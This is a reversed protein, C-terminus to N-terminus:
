TGLFVFRGVFTSLDQTSTAEKLPNDVTAATEYAQITVQSGSANARVVTPYSLTGSSARNNIDEIAFGGLITDWGLAAATLVEGTTLYSNDFTIDVIKAKVGFWETQTTQSNPTAVEAITLAM